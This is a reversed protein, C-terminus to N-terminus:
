LGNRRRDRAKRSARDFALVAQKVKDQQRTNIASSLFFDHSVQSVVGFFFFSV